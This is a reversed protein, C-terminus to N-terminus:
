GEAAAKLREMAGALVSRPCALNIREFGDEVTIVTQALHSQADTVIVSDELNRTAVFVANGSVWRHETLELRQETRGAEPSTIGAGAM